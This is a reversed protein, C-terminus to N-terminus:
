DSKRVGINQYGAFIKAVEDAYQAFEKERAAFQLVVVRDESTYVLQLQRCPEKKENVLTWGGLAFRMGRALVLGSDTAKLQLKKSVPDEEQDEAYTTAFEEDIEIPDDDKPSHYVLQLMAHADKEHGPPVVTLLAEEGPNPLVKWKDPLMLQFRRQRDMYPKWGKGAPMVAGNLKQAFAGRGKIVQIPLKADSPLIQAWGGTAAGAAAAVGFALITRRKLDLDEVGM